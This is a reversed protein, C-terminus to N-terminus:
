GQFARLLFVRDVTKKVAADTAMLKLMAKRPVEILRAGGRATATANRRRGSILGMEGFFNGATLTAIKREAGGEPRVSIEVQGGAVILFSDSYDNQRVIVEGNRVERM